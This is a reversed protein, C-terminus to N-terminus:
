RGSFSVVHMCPELVRRLVNLLKEVALAAQKAFPATITGTDSTAAPPPAASGEGPADRCKSRGGTLGHLLFPLLVLMGTGSPSLM